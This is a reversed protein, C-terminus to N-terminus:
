FILISDIEIYKVSKKDSGGCGLERGGYLVYVEQSHKYELVGDQATGKCEQGRYKTELFM